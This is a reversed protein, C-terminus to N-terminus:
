VSFKEKKGGNEDRDVGKVVVNGVEKNAEREGQNSDRKNECGVDVRAESKVKGCKVL